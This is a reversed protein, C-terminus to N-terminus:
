SSPQSPATSGYAIAFWDTDGDPISPASVVHGSSDVIEGGESATLAPNGGNATGLDFITAGYDALTAPQTKTM